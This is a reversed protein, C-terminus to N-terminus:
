ADQDSRVKKFIYWDIKLAADLLLPPLFIYFFLEYPEIGLWLAVGNGIERLNFPYVFGMLAGGPSLHLMPSAFVWSANM